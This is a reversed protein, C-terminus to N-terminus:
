VSERALMAAGLLGADAELQTVDFQCARCSDPFVTAEFSARVRKVYPEGLAETIGGGLIVRDLALMTIWSGIAIGLLDAGRDVIRTVIADGSAYASAIEPTEPMKGDGRAEAIQARFATRSCHDEVTRAGPPGDPVLITHGIEGATFFAGHHLRGGLVLGGGVGTGVWVGLADGRGQAPGFHYESWVAGNVDNDLVVRTGLRRALLDRLPVDRWGLNPASLVIGGPIDIAGAAAVGVAALAGVEVGAVACAEHVGRELVDLVHEVGAAAETKAGTRAVIRNAPDVVGFQLNTGGLDVGVVPDNGGREAM